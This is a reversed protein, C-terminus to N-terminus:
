QDRYKELNNRVIQTIKTATQLALMGDEGSVIPASKDIIASIFAKIEDLLADSDQMSFNEQDIAPIGPFMEKESKRLISLTKQNLDGSFYANHQFIRLERKAQMSIRSATVNAVCGTTFEIRATAIDAKTSLVPAGSAYIQEIPKGVLYQIIDIDHIMLDLVVNVDTSRPKYPALRLSEIFLPKTLHTKLNTLVPNFRELHGIQLTLKNKNAISILEQAEDITATIPKELLVHMNNELFFKAIAHHSSTPTAISVADVKGLLDQYNIIAEVNHQSAIDHCRKEDTDCVAVFEVNPLSAYKGAHFKGLYGVGVVACKIKNM